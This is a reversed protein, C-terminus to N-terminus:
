EWLNDSLYLRHIESGWEIEYLIIGEAESGNMYAIVYVKGIHTIGSAYKAENKGYQKTNTNKVDDPLADLTPM